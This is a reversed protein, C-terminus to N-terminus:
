YTATAPDSRGRVRTLRLSRTTANSGELMILSPGRISGARSANTKWATPGFATDAAQASGPLRVLTAPRAEHALDTAAACAVLSGYHRRRRPLATARGVVRREEEPLQSGTLAVTQRGPTKDKVVDPARDTADDVHVEHGAVFNEEQGIVDDIGV